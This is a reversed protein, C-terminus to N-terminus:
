LVQCSLAHHLHRIRKRLGFMIHLQKLTSYGAIDRKTRYFRISLDCLVPLRSDRCFQNYWIGDDMNDPNRFPHKQWASVPYICPMAVSNLQLLGAPKRLRWRLGELDPYAWTDYTKYSPLFIGEKEWVNGALIVDGEIEEYRAVLNRISQVQRLYYSGLNIIHTSEPFRDLGRQHCTNWAEALYDIRERSRLRPFRRLDIHCYFPLNLSLQEPNTSVCLALYKAKLPSM